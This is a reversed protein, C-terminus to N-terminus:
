KVALLVSADDVSLFKEIRLNGGDVEETPVLFVLDMSRTQGVKFTNIEHRSNKTSVAADDYAKGSSGVWKVKNAISFSSEDGGVRTVSISPLIYQQGKPAPKNATSESAVRKAGNANFATVKIKWDGLTAEDGFAVAKTADDAAAPSSAGAAPSSTSSGSSGCGAIALVVVMVLGLPILWKKM